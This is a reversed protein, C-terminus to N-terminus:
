PEFAEVIPTAPSFTGDVEWGASAEHPAVDGVVPHQPPVLRGAVDAHESLGGPVRVAVREVSLTTQHRAFVARPAHRTGLVVPGDRREGFPVATLPEVTRVVHDNARVSRDPEGIRRVADIGIVLAVAGAALDARAVHVSAVQRASGDRGDGGIEVAGVPQREGDVFGPQVDGVCSSVVDPHERDTDVSQTPSPSTKTSHVTPTKSPIRRSSAPRIQAAAPSPTWQKSGSPVSIPFSWRGSATELRVNPPM